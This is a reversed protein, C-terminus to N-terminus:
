AMIENDGLAKRLAELAKAQRGVVMHYTIGMSDAIRSLTWGAYFRLILIDRQEGPLAQLANKLATRKERDMVVSEASPLLAQEESLEAHNKHTRYYDILTDHSLKYLLTSVAAPRECPTELLRFLKIFVDGCLDEADHYSSVRLEFYQLVGSKYKRYLQEQSPNM